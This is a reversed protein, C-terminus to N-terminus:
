YYTLNTGIFFVTNNILFQRYKFLIHSIKKYKLVKKYNSITNILKYLDNKFKILKILEPDINNSSVSENSENSENRYLNFIFIDNRTNLIGQYEPNNCFKICRNYIVNAVSKNYRKNYINENVYYLINRQLDRPLKNFIKLKKRVHYARYVSQIKIVYKNYVKNSHICCYDSYKKNKKCLRKRKTLDDIVNHRCRKPM